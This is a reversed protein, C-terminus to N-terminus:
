RLKIGGFTKRKLFGEAFIKEGNWDPLVKFDKCRNIASSVWINTYIGSFKAKKFIADLLAEETGNFGLNTSFLRWIKTPQANEESLNVEEMVKRSVYDPVDDVKLLDDVEKDAERIAAMREIEADIREAVMDNVADSLRDTYIEAMGYVKTDPTLNRYNGDEQLEVALLVRQRIASQSYHDRWIISDITHPMNSLAKGYERKLLGYGGVPMCELQGDTLSHLYDGISTTCGENDTMLNREKVRENVDAIKRSKDALQQMLEFDGRYLQEGSKEVLDDMVQTEVYNKEPAENQRAEFRMRTIDSLQREASHDDLSTNFPNMLKKVACHMADDYVQKADM